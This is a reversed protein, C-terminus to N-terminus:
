NNQLSDIILDAPTKNKALLSMIPQLYAEENLNMEKLSDFAISFLQLALDRIPETLGTKPTNQRLLSIQYFNLNEILKKAKNFYKANYLLGKWFAPIAEVFERKQSDHNRIEIYNKLRVDPFFLSLHTLWDQKSAQLGKFGSKIYERFTLDSIPISIGDKEVFIMPVDLLIEMYKEFSFDQPNEVLNKSVLGCRDNDMHLWSNARFSKYGNLKGNRVPSNAFVASIIPSLKLALALKEMADKESNYDFSAQIGATERMMVFPYEGKTPLYRSMYEYRKKPIININEFTSLPQAGLELFSINLNECATYLQCLYNDINEHIENITNLPKFSIEVQSGPELSINGLSGSLGLLAGDKYTKEWNASKFNLLLKKIDEYGVAKNSNKYVAIKEFEVGIKQTQKIGDFFIELLDDKNKITNEQALELM